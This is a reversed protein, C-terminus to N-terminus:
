SSLDDHAPFAYLEYLYLHASQSITYLNLDTPPWLIKHPCSDLFPM